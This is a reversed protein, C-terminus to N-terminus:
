TLRTRKGAIVQEGLRLRVHIAAPDMAATTDERRIPLLVHSGLVKEGSLVGHVLFPHSTEEQRPVILVTLGRNEKTGEIQEVDFGKVMPYVWDAVFHRYAQRSVINLPVENCKSITDVEDVKKTSMGIVIIGGKPSNAFAAVDKGLSYKGNKNLDRYPESKADLWNSEPQGVFLDWKGGRLLDLATKPTIEGGSAARLLADVEDGLRWADAVTRGRPPWPDIDVNM